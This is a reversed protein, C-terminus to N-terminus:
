DKENRTKAYIWVAVWQGLMIIIAVALPDYSIDWLWQPLHM